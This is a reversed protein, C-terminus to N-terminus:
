VVRAVWGLSIVNPRYNNVGIEELYKRVEGQRHLWVQDKYSKKPNFGLKNLAQYVFDILPKSRNTFSIKAYSYEKQRVKYKHIVFSGDTDILGRVCSKIYDTNLWIWDPVAAQLDVKSGTTLGRSILYKVLSVSSISVRWVKHKRHVYIKPTLGFLKLVLERVYYAFYQDTESNLYVTCQFDTLGGDGLMIGIFEALDPSLVPLYIKRLGNRNFRSSCDLCCFKRTKERKHFNKKCFKCLGIMNLVLGSQMFLTM